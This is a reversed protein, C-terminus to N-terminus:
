LSLIKYGQNKLNLTMTWETIRKIIRNIMKPSSMFEQKTSKSFQNIICPVYDGAPMYYTNSFMQAMTVKAKQLCPRFAIRYCGCSVGLLSAVWFLIKLLVDTPLEWKIQNVKIWENRPTRAYFYHVELRWLQRGMHTLALYNYHFM